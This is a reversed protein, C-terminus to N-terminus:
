AGEKGKQKSLVLIARDAPRFFLLRFRACRTTLSNGLNGRNIHDVAAVTLHPMLVSGESRESPKPDHKIIQRLQSCEIEALQETPDPHVFKVQDFHHAPEADTTRDLLEAALAAALDHCAPASLEVASCTIFSSGPLTEHRSVNISAILAIRGELPDLGHSHMTYDLRLTRCAATMIDDANWCGKRRDGALCASSRQTSILIAQRRYLTWIAYRAQAMLCSPQIGSKM